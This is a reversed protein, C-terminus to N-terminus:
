FALNFEGRAKTEYAIDDDVRVKFFPAPKVPKCLCHGNLWTHQTHSKSFIGANNNRGSIFQFHYARSNDGDHVTFFYTICIKGVNFVTHWDADLVHHYM